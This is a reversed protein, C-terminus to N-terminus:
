LPINAHKKKPLQERKNAAMEFASIL